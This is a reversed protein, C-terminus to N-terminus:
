YLPLFEQKDIYNVSLSMKQEVLRRYLWKLVLFCGINLPQLLYLLYAPM